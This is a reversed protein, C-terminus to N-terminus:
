GRRRRRLLMAGGLALLAVASPEPVPAVALGSVSGFDTGESPGVPTAVGTATSITYLRDNIAGYLTGNDFTLAGFGSAPAVGLQGVPTLFGNSPNLTYLQDDEATIAYLTNNAPNFALGDVTIPGLADSTTGILTSTGNGLTFTYLQPTNGAAGVGATTIYGVGGMGFAIDGEGNLNGIGINIPTGTYSGTLPNIQRIQDTNGDFTYLVGNSVALGFPLTAADGLAGVPADAGTTRDLTFTTPTGTNPATGIAFLQTQQASATGTGLALATGLALFTQSSTFTM